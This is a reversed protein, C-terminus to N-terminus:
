ASTSARHPGHVSAGSPRSEPLRFAGVPLFRDDERIKNDATALRQTRPLPYLHWTPTEGQDNRCVGVLIGAQLAQAGRGLIGFSECLHEAIRLKAVEFDGGEEILRVPRDTLMDLLEQAIGPEVVEDDQMERAMPDLVVGALEIEGCPVGLGVEEERSSHLRGEQVSQDPSASRLPDNEKEVAAESSREFSPHRGPRGGRYVNAVLEALVIL